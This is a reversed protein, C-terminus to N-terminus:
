EYLSQRISVFSIPIGGLRSILAERSSCAKPMDLLDRGIAFWVLLAVIALAVVFAVAAASASVGTM